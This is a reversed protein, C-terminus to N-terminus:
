LNVNTSCISFVYNINGSFYGIENRRLKQIERFLEEVKTEQISWEEMAYVHACVVYLGRASLMVFAYFVDYTYAGASV